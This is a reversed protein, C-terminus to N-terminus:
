AAKAGLAVLQAGRGVMRIGVAKLDKREEADFVGDMAARVVEANDDTNSIAFTGPDPDCEPLAYAGQDALKIWESTFEPGLFRMISMQAGMHLPRHDPHGSPYSRFCDILRHSIGTGIQVQKSNYRRGRGVFLNLAARFGNESQERSIIPSMEAAQVDSM